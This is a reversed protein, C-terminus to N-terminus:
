SDALAQPNVARCGPVWTQLLKAPHEPRLEFPKTGAPILWAEGQRFPSAGITGSGELVILIQFREPRPAYEIASALNLAETHFYECVIPLTVPEIECATTRSVQVAKDLHLERPRGYDYLRYTVDSNQQIECMVLGAGIAHITGAPVFFADGAKVAVWHMLEEIDGTLAAERLREPSVSERLGLGIRADPAARLVIWMETKGASKEHEAAFADNPHVQVSLPESTFIFKVLLPLQPAEFWVEGIKQAPNEYWPQLDKSGWVKDILRVPLRVPASVDM